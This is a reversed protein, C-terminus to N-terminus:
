AGLEPRGRLGTLQGEVALLMREAQEENGVVLEERRELRVFSVVRVLDELEDESLPALFEVWSLRRKIEVM